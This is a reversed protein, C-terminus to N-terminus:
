LLLVGALVGIGIFGLSDILKKFLNPKTDKIAQKYVDEQTKLLEQYQKVTEKAVELQEKQINNIDKSLKIQYELEANAEKYLEIQDETVRCQEIEVVMKGAISEDFTIDAARAMECEALMFPILVISLIFLAFKM